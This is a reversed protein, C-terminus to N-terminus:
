QRLYVRSYDFEYFKDKFASADLPHNVISVQNHGWGVDFLFDFSLPKGGQIHHLTWDYPSGKQVEHGDMYCSFSNDKRYLLQWVHYQSAGFTSVGVREMAEPWTAYNVQDIDSISNSHWYRGNYNTHGGGNDWGFSEVLDIEAGQDWENGSNWLAFWYYPPTVMRVRTEWLIDKGLLSGGNPLKWKAMFSGCGLNHQPPSCETAGNLPVLFTKM